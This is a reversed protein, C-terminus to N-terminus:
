RDPPQAPIASIFSDLVRRIPPLWRLRAQIGQLLPWAPQHSLTTNATRVGVRASEAGVSTAHEGFSVSEAGASTAHEGIGAASLLIAAWVVLQLSLLAADALGHVAFAAMVAAILPRRSAPDSACGKRRTLRESRIVGASSRIEGQAAGGLRFRRWCLSLYVSLLITGLLGFDLLLELLLHHTHAAEPGAFLMRVMGYSEIGWGSLPREVFGALATKWIDARLALDRPIELTRGFYSPVLLLLAAGAGLLLIWKELLRWYRACFLYVVISLALAGIMMRSDSAWLGLLNAILVAGYLRSRGRFRADRRCGIRDLRHLCLLITLAASAAYFNANQYTTPVRYLPDAVPMLAQGVAIAAPFLSTVILTDIMRGFLTATMRARLILGVWFIATLGAAAAMGRPNSNRAASIMAMGGAALLYLAAPVRRVIASADGRRWSRLVLLTACAVVAGVGIAVSAALCLLLLEDIGLRSLFRWRLHSRLDPDTRSHDTTTSSM